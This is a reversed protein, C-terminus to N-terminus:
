GISGTYRSFCAAMKQAKPDVKPKAVYPPYPNEGADLAALHRNCQELNLVRKM